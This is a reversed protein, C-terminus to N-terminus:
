LGGDMEEALTRCQATITERLLVTSDRDGRNVLKWVPVTRLMLDLIGALSRIEEETDPRVIFQMFLPIVAEEPSLPSIINEDGQELLIIGGLPAHIMHGIKEKGNWPSPHVCVTGDNRAELIPMDGSIMTIEGPFLQQWNQYQTTKGTGSPATLLWARGQWVFSVSHFICCHHILIVKATLPILAKFEVYSNTSDSPLMRRASNMTDGDVAILPAERQDSKIYGRFSRSTGLYNYCINYHYGALLLTQIHKKRM